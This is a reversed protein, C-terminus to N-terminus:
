PPWAKTMMMMYPTLGNRIKKMFADCRLKLPCEVKVQGVHFLPPSSCESTIQPSSPLFSPIISPLFTSLLKREGSALSHLNPQKPRPQNALAIFLGKVSAACCLLLRHVRKHIRARMTEFRPQHGGLRTVNEMGKERATVM